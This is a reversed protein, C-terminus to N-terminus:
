NFLGHHVFGRRRIALPCGVANKVDFNIKVLRENSPCCRSSSWLILPSRLGVKVKCHLKGLAMGKGLLPM